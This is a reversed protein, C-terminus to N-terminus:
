YPIPWNAAQALNEYRTRVYYIYNMGAANIQTCGSVSSQGQNFAALAMLTYQAVTCGPYAKMVSARDVQIARVGEDVNILPNFVSTAWGPAAMDQELNPHNDPLRAQKLWGCAPTLQMLGFSKSEADTWGAPTKCPSDPSIAYVEFNSELSIQAKFIMPDPEGAAAALELVQCDYADWQDSCTYLPDAAGGCMPRMGCKDAAAQTSDGAFECGVLATALLVSSFVRGSGV